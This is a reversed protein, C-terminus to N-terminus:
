SDHEIAFLRSFPRGIAGTRYFGDTTAVYVAKNTATLATPDGPVGPQEIWVDGAGASQWVKGSPGVAVLEGSADSDLLVAPPASPLRVVSGDLGLRVVAARATTALVHDPSLPDVAVDLLPIDSVSEWRREDTSTLLQRSFSDLGWTRVATGDLAHFDAQGELAIVSWTAAADTSELLGANVPAAPEDANPHGSALLRDDVTALAMTDSRRQGYPTVSGDAAVRFVGYHAGILVQDGATAIGHIHGVQLPETQSQADTNHNTRVFFLATLLCILLVGLAAAIFTAVRRTPLSLTTM